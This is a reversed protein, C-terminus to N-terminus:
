EALLGTEAIMPPRIGLGSAHLELGEIGPIEDGAKKDARETQTKRHANEQAAAAEQARTQEFHEVMAIGGREHFFLGLYMWTQKAYDEARVFMDAEYKQLAIVIGSKDTQWSDKAAVINRALHLADEMAVNVGVGAFPTMLHAADGILAIGATPAWTLGIPLMYMARLLTDPDSRLVMDKAGQDWDGFCREIVERRATEMDSFDIGSDKDWSEAARMFAYVRIAGDGNRQALIGKNPGLTLCMGGGARKGLDPSRTNADSLKVDLGSIGSYFPKADTVLPRVKSWAGDAGIVIDFGTEVPGNTFHLDYTGNPQPEVKSLKMGWRVTGEVLSDLLMARLLVRDIEPRNSMADPRKVGVGENEDMLVKGTPEYIKLVEGEPRARALFQDYLGAERLALQASGEHLDLTGGQTRAYRDADIEFVGVIAIKPCAM